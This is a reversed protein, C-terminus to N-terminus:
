KYMRLFIKQLFYSFIYAPAGAVYFQYYNELDKNKNELNEKVTTLEDINFTFEQHKNELRLTNLYPLFGVLNFITAIGLTSLTPVYFIKNKILFARSIFFLKKLIM